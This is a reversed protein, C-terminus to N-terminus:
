APIKVVVDVDDDFNDVVVDVVVIKTSILGLCFQNLDLDNKPCNPYPPIKSLWLNDTIIICKNM